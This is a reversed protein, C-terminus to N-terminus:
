FKTLLLVGLLVTVLSNKSCLGRFCISIQFLLLLFTQRALSAPTLIFITLKAQDIVETNIAQQCQHRQIEAQALSTAEAM